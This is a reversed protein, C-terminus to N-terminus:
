SRSREHDESQGLKDAITQDLGHLCVALGKATAEDIGEYRYADHTVDLVATWDDSDPKDGFGMPEIWIAKPIRPRFPVQPPMIISAIRRSAYRVMELVAPSGEFRADATFHDTDLPTTYQVALPRRAMPVRDGVCVGIWCHGTDEGDYEYKEATDAAYERIM